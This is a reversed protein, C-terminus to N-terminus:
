KKIIFYITIITFQKKQYFNIEQLFFNKDEYLINCINIGLIDLSENMTEMTKFSSDRNIKFISLFDDILNNNM